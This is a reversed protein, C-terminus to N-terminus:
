LRCLIWEFRDVEVAPGEKDDSDYEDESEDEDAWNGVGQGMAKKKQSVDMDEWAVYGAKALRKVHRTTMVEEAGTDDKVIYASAFVDERDWDDDQGFTNLYRDDMASMGDYYDDAFDEMDYKLSKEYERAERHESKDGPVRSGEKVVVQGPLLEHVSREYSIQPNVKFRHLTHWVQIFHAILIAPVYGNRIVSKDWSGEKHIGVLRWTKDDRLLLPAGCDGRATDGDHFRTALRSGPVVECSSRLVTVYVGDEKRVFDFHYSWIPLRNRVAKALRCKSIGLRDWLSGDVIFIAVDEAAESKLCVKGHTIVKTVDVRVTKPSIVGNKFTCALIKGADGSEYHSIIHRATILYDGLRTFAGLVSGDEAFLYGFPLSRPNFPRASKEPNRSEKLSSVAGPFLSALDVSAEETLEPFLVGELTRKLNVMHRSTGHEDMFIFAGAPTGSLGSFTTSLRKYFDLNPM